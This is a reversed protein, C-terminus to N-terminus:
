TKGTAGLSAHYERHCNACLLDCKEMEALVAGWDRTINSGCVGFLKTDPDRHHFDMADACKAYGCVKCGTLLKYVVMWERLRANVERRQADARARVPTLPRTRPRGRKM